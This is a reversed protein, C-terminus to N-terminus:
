SYFILNRFILYHFITHFLSKQVEELVALQIKCMGDTRIATWFMQIVFYMCTSTCVHIYIHLIWKTDRDGQISYSLRRNFDYTAITFVVVSFRYYAVCYVGACVSQVYSILEALSWWICENAYLVCSMSVLYANSSHTHTNPM